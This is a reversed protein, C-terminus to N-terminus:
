IECTIILGAIQKLLKGPNGGHLPHSWVARYSFNQSLSNGEVGLECARGRGEKGGSNQTHKALLDVQGNGEM